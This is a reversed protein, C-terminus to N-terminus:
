FLYRKGMIFKPTFFLGGDTFMTQNFEVINSAVNYEFFISLNKKVYIDLGVTFGANLIIPLDFLKRNENSYFGIGWQMGFYYYFLDNKSTTGLLVKDSLGLYFNMTDGITLSGIDFVIFNRISYGTTPNNHLNFGFELAGMFDNSTQIGSFALGLQIKYVTNDTEEQAYLGM